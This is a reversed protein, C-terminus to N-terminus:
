LLSSGQSPVDSSSLQSPSDCLSSDEAKLEPDGLTSNLRRPSTLKRFLLLNQWKTHTHTHTHTRARAHGHRVSGQTQVCLEPSFIGLYLSM